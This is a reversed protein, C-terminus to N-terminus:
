LLYVSNGGGRDIKQVKEHLKFYAKYYNSSLVKKINVDSVEKAFVPM